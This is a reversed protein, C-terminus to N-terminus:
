SKLPIEFKRSTLSLVENNPNAVSDAIASPKGNGENDNIPMVAIMEAIFPVV